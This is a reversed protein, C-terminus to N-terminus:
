RAMSRNSHVEMICECGSCAIIPQGHRGRLNAEQVQQSLPRNDCPATPAWASAAQEVYAVRQDFAAVQRQLCDQARHAEALQLRLDDVERTLSHVERELSDCRHQLAQADQPARGPQAEQDWWATGEGGSKEHQHWWHPATDRWRSEAM